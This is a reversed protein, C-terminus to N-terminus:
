VTEVTQKTEQDYSTFVHQEQYIHRKHENHRRQVHGSRGVYRIHQSIPDVEAYIQQPSPFLANVRTAIHAQQQNRPLALFATECSQCCLAIRVGGEFLAYSEFYNMPDQIGRQCVVCPMRHKERYMEHCPLCRQHLRAPLWHGNAQTAIESYGFEIAAKPEHCVICTRPPQQAFWADLLAQQEQRHKEAQEAIRAHQAEMEQAQKRREEWERHIREMELQARRDREQKNETFCDKCMKMYGDKGNKTRHFQTTLLKEHGCQACTKKQSEEAMQSRGEM